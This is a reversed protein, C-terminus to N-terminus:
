KVSKVLLINNEVKDVIVSSGTPIDKKEETMAKFQNTGNLYLTIEGFGRRNAPIKLYVDTIIGVAENLDVKKGGDSLKHVAKLVYIFIIVFAIGVASANVTAPAMSQGRNVYFYLWSWSFMTIFAIFNKFTFVKFDLGSHSETDLDTDIDVDTDVDLDVDMDADVDGGGIFALIFQIFLIASAAIAIWLIIKEM